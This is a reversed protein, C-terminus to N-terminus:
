RTELTFCFRREAAVASTIILEFDGRTGTLGPTPWEFRTWGLKDEVKVFGVERTGFKLRLNVPTGAGDRSLFWPFGAHGVIRDGLEVQRFILTLAGNPTPHAWICRRPRFDADTDITTVGVLFPEGSPCAFRAAPLTPQGFLDGGGVAAHSQFPCPARDGEDGEFVELQGPRVRELLRSRALAPSPNRLLRLTFPGSRRQELEQWKGLEQAHQGFFSIEIAREYGDDDARGLMSLPMWEEGLSQRALPQAWNPAIAILAGKPDWPTLAETLADWDGSTPASHAFYFHAGLEALGLLPLGLWLWPRWRM